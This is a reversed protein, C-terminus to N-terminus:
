PTKEISRQINNWFPTVKQRHFSKDLLVKNQIDNPSGGFKVPILEHIDIEKGKLELELSLKRNASNAANRANLYDQGYLLNFPGRPKALDKPYGQWNWISFTGDAYKILEFSSQPKIYASEAFTLDSTLIRNELQAASGGPLSTRGIMEIPTALITMGELTSIFDKSLYIIEDQPSKAPKYARKGMESNAPAIYRGANVFMTILGAIGVALRSPPEDKGDGDGGAVDGFPDTKLVPNNLMSAYPSIAYTIESKPDIQKFRGIQPDLNRYVTEYTELGFSKELYIGQYKNKNEVATSSLNSNTLTLGFPYYHNEELVESHYHGVSLNDFWVDKGISQNDVYIIVFGSSLSTCCIVQGGNAQVVSGPILPIFGGGLPIQPVQTVSNAGPVLEMKDNFFLINLHAKPANTNNNAETLNEIQGALSPNNLAKTIDKVNSPLESTPIGAYNSGGLLTSLLSEVIPKSGTEDSQIYDGDYFADASVTFHDGPMTKLMVAPGIRKNPDNGNLRAAMQDKPDLSGPKGDRVNPINDFVLNEINALGVEHSAFYNASMPHSTVTSRINGLHDKVYYDYIFKTQHQTSDNAYPRSRGEENNIYQLQDNKYVFDGLYDFKDVNLGNIIKKSLLNGNADFTYFISGQNEVEVIAPLDLNGYVYSSKKNYDKILNGNTDYLYEEALDASDKFDPLSFTVGSQVNDHVKVLRNSGSKYSYSLIDIDIPSQSIFPNMGRQSMTKINGNQDYTIDSVSYDHDNKKWAGNSEERFEAHVLRQVDDYSYGYAKELGDKGSWIVGAINGNLYKRHFGKDYFIKEEFCHPNTASYNEYNIHSIFGRINFDNTVSGCTYYKKVVRGLHDYGYNVLQYNIGNNIKQTISKVQDSGGGIQINRDYTKELTIVPLIDQANSVAIAGPNNHKIITKWLMGQFYYVYSNIDLGDKFNKKQKQIIRGKDDYFVASKIWKNDNPDEPNIIRVKNGTSLSRTQFSRIPTVLFSQNVAPFQSYDFNFESLQSYNDYYNYSLIKCSDILLPYSEWLRYNSTYYDIKNANNTSITDAARMAMQIRNENRTLLGTFLIRDLADYVNFEWQLKSRQSGNQRYILRDRKDYVFYEVEKGPVKKEILHNKIDYYFSYCLDKVNTLDNIPNAQVMAEPTIVWRKRDMEDYVYYLLSAGNSTTDSQHTDFEFSKILILKGDKDKFELSSKGDEDTTKTVNIEGPVYYGILVPVSNANEAIGWKIVENICNLRREYTVGKNSGVWSNGPHLFKNTCMLPSNDYEIKSYPNEDPGNQDYFQRMRANINLKALGNSLSSPIALPLYKYSERGFMDYVFPQVIDLSNPHARKLIKQYPRGIGDYYETQQRCYISGPATLYNTAIDPQEKRIYNFRTVGTLDNLDPYPVPAPNSAPPPEPINMEPDQIQANALNIASFLYFCVLKITINKM